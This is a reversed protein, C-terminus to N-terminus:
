KGKPQTGKNVPTKVPQKVAPKAGPLEAPPMTELKKLVLSFIDDSEESFLVNGASTDLVYKYGNEKAVAEIGKKAKAVLPATLEGYKKQIEAYAQNKFEELRGQLQQLESIKTQKVSESLTTEKEQFDKVKSEFETQMNISETELDKRFKDIADKASKTEPMKNILSDLSLHAVKQSYASAFFGLCIFLIFSRTFSSSMTNITYQL